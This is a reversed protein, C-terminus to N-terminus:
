LLGEIRISANGAFETKTNGGTVEFDIRTPTDAEIPNLYKAGKILPLLNRKEGNDRIARVTPRAEDTNILMTEDALIKPHTVDNGNFRVRVVGPGRFTFQPWSHYEPGPDLLLSGKGTLQDNKWSDHSDAVRALPQEVILMVDLELGGNAAPDSQIAPKIFGRRVAVWRWGTANTFIALWGVRRREVLRKFWERRLRLGNIGTDPNILIFMPLELEAHDVTEGIYEEGWQRAAADFLAKVEVHGLNTPEHGLWIDYKGADPGGSLPVVVGDPSVYWVITHETLPPSFGM